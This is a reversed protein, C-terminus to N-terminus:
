ELSLVPWELERSARKLARDPHVAAPRGVVALMAYDSYSDSYAYSELLDLEFARAYEQMIRAKVAGAVVPKELRGTAVGDKMELTNTIYDDMGLYRALPAVLVDLSGSIIVQRLGLKKGRDVLAQVGPYLNPKLVEEFHEEALELLRDQYAGKYGAYLLENFKARSIQDAIFFAPLKLLAKISESATRALSVENRTMFMYSHVLNTRVLTGDMDFFAAASATSPKADGDWPVRRMM